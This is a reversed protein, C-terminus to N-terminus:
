FNFILPLTLKSSESTTHAPMFFLESAKNVLILWKPSAIKVHLTKQPCRICQGRRKMDLANKHSVNNKLFSKYM